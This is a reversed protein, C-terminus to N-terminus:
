SVSRGKLNHAAEPVFQGPSNHQRDVRRADGRDGYGAGEGHIPRAAVKHSAVGVLVPREVNGIRDSDERVQKLASARKAKSNGLLNELWRM